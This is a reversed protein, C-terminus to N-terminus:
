CALYSIFIVIPRMPTIRIGKVENKDAKYGINEALIYYHFYHL